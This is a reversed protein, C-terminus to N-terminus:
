GSCGAIANGECNDPVNGSVRTRSLTAAFDNYIGGGGISAYNGVINSSAVALEM